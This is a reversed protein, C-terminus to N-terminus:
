VRQRYLSPDVTKAMAITDLGNELFSAVATSASAPDVILDNYHISLVSFNSRQNLWIELKALQSAYIEGLRADPLNAGKKGQRDLM